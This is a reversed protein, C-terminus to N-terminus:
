QSAVECIGDGVFSDSFHSAYGGGHGALAFGVARFGADNDRLSWYLTGRADEPVTVEAHIPLAFDLGDPGFRYLPSLAATPAAGDLAELTLETVQALAGPPVDVRMGYGELTGGEPGIEKRVIGDDAAPLCGSLVVVAIAGLFSSANM